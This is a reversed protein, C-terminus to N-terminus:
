VRDTRRPASLKVMPPTNDILVPSSVLEDQRAADAANSPRDSAIVRFYYRGDALVDGDLLMSNEAMNSKILKWQTEEEGRFYLAYVLRDSDPDDAQWTVQIQSGARHSLTQTPTGAAASADGTDTVTISYAAASTSNTGSTKSSSSSAAQTTVNISRVTPPNNQPLYFLSCTKSRRGPSKLEARWQIYRANPSRIISDRSDTLPESWDSWTKDPRASNGSRTEFSAQGNSRWTLRGWRAM